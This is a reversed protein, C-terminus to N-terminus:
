HCRFPSYYSNYISLNSWVHKNQSDIIISAIYAKILNALGFKHNNTQVTYEEEEEEVM